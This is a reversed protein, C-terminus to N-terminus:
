PCSLAVFPGLIDASLAAQLPANEKEAHKAQQPQRSGAQTATLQLLPALDQEATSPSHVAAGEPPGAGQLACARKDGASCDAVHNSQLRHNGLGIALSM